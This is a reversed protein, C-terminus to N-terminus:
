RTARGNHGSVYRRPRGHNDPTEIQAGCGCACAVMTRPKRRAAVMQEVTAPRLGIRYAHRNNQSRTVYELNAVHNHQKQGDRHNVEHGAPCPGLFAAAVLRHALRPFYRGDQWLQYRLYGGPLRGPRLVRGIRAGGGRGAGHRAAQGIRRVRGHSRVAYTAEFGVAPRWEEVVMWGLDERETM